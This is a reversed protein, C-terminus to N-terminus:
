RRKLVNYHWVDELPRKPVHLCNKNDLWYKVNVSDTELNPREKPFGAAIISDIEYSQGIDLIKSLSDKDINQLWCSGVGFSLLSLMINQASAGIDRLNPAQSREKNILLVIYFDPQKNRPPNRKPAVYAAFRLCNFVKKKIEKRKVILYELFQLNAASPALRGCNIAKKIINQSVDKQKFFRISRRSIILEYLKNKAM